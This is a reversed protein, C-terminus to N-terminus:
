RAPAADPPECGPDASRAPGATLAAVCQRLAIPYPTWRLDLARTAASADMRLPRRWLRLLGPSIPDPLAQLDHGAAALLRRALHLPPGLGWADARLQTPRIRRLPTAGVALALDRFWDNWRPSDPAALNLIRPVGPVAPRQLSRVIAACVDDVAVGHTWGDGNEGLDGLRGQRLWRVIRHVWLSSGPGWVCGPRLVTVRPPEDPSEHALALVQAEAAQKARAYWGRAPGLPMAENVPMDMEGYVAMSSLHVVAQVRAARVAHALARAGDAIAPGSGAVCNVVADQGRLAQTLTAQNRTDLRLHGTGGRRSASTPLYRGDARMLAVLRAGIYGSGGLVLVKM